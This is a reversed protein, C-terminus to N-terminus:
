HGNPKSKITCTGVCAFYERAEKKVMAEVRERDPSVGKLFLDHADQKIKTYLQKWLAKYDDKNGFRKSKYYSKLVSGLFEKLQDQIVKQFLGERDTSSSPLTIADVVAVNSSTSPEWHQQSQQSPQSPQFPEQVFSAHDAVQYEQHIPQYSEDYSGHQWDSSQGEVEGRSSSSNERQYKQAHQYENQVYPQEELYQQGHQQQQHPSTFGRGDSYPSRRGHDWDLRRDDGYRRPPQQFPASSDNFRRKSSGDYERRYTDRRGVIDDRHRSNVLGREDRDGRGGRGGRNGGFNVRNGRDGGRDGRGDRGEQFYSGYRKRGEDGFENSATRHREEFEGDRRRGYMNYRDNSRNRPAHGSRDYRDYTGDRTPRDNFPHRQSPSHQTRKREFSGEERGRRNNERGRWRNRGPRYHVRWVLKVGELLVTDGAFHDNIKKIFSDVTSLGDNTEDEDVAQKKKPEYFSQHEPQNNDERELPMRDKLTGEKEAGGDIEESGLNDDDNIDNEDEDDEDDDDEDEDDGRGRRSGEYGRQDFFEDAMGTEEDREEELDQLSEIEDEHRGSHTEEGEEDKMKDEVQQSSMKAKKAPRSELAHQPLYLTFTKDSVVNYGHYYMQALLMDLELPSLEAGNYTDSTITDVVSGYRGNRLYEVFLRGAFNKLKVEKSTFMKELFEKVAVVNLEISDKKAELMLNKGEQLLNSDMFLRLLQDYTEGAIPVKAVRCSRFCKAALGVINKKITLELAEALVASSLGARLLSEVPVHINKEILLNVVKGIPYAVDAFSITLSVPLWKELFKAVLDPAADVLSAACEMMLRPGLMLKDGKVIFQEKSQNCYAKMVRHLQPIKREDGCLLRFVKAGFKPLQPFGFSVSDAYLEALLNPDESHNALKFMGRWLDMNEAHEYICRHEFCMPFAHCFPRIRRRHDKFGILAEKGEDEVDKVFNEKIYAYALLMCQCLAPNVVSKSCEVIYDRLISYSVSVITPEGVAPYLFSKLREPSKALNTGVFIPKLLEDDLVGSEGLLITAAEVFDDVNVKTVARITDYAFARSFGDSESIKFKVLDLAIDKWHSTAILKKIFDEEAHNLQNRHFEDIEEINKKAWVNNHFSAALELKENRVAELFVNRELAPTILDGRNCVKEYFSTYPNTRIDSTTLKRVRAEYMEPTIFDANRRLAEDFVMDYFPSKEAIQQLSSVFRNMEEDTLSEIVEPSRKSMKELLYMFNNDSLKMSFNKFENKWFVDKDKGVMMKEILKTLSLSDVDPNSTLHGIVASLFQEPVHSEEEAIKQFCKINTDTHEAQIARDLLRCQTKEGITVNKNRLFIFFHLNLNPPASSAITNAVRDTIHHDFSRNVILFDLCDWQVKWLPVDETDKIEDSEIVKVVEKLPMRVGYQRCTNLLEYIHATASRAILGSLLRGITDRPARNYQINNLVAQRNEDFKDVTEHSDVKEKEEVVARSPSSELTSEEISTEDMYDEEELVDDEEEELNSANGPLDEESLIGDLDGIEDDKHHQRQSTQHQQQAVTEIESEGSEEKQIRGMKQKRIEELTLVRVTLDKPKGDQPSVKQQKGSMM